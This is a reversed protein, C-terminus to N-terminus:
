LVEMASPIEAVNAEFDHLVGSGARGSDLQRIRIRPVFDAFHQPHHFSVSQDVPNHLRHLATCHQGSQIAAFFPLYHTLGEMLLCCLIWRAAYAATESACCPPCILLPVDAAYRGQSLM